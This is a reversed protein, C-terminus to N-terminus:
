RLRFTATIVGPESAMRQFEYCCSCLSKFGARERMEPTWEGGAKALARDCCTCWADPFVKRDSPSWHFGIKRNSMSEVARVIHRCTIPERLGGHKRGAQGAENGM